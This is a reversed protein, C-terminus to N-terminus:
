AGDMITEKGLLEALWRTSAFQACFSLVAITIPVGIFAGFIGWLFTWLFVSFLVLSPSIGLTNGAVRPEIYSGIIFQATSLCAFVILASQPSQFQALAYCTPLITAFAPGIFPIYNLTFAVIGWEAAFRLGFATALAWVAIGTAASMITRILLYRRIRSAALEFGSIIRAADDDTLRRIRAGLDSVELLGLIVYLLVVLWFSVMTNLRASIGQLARLLLRSDLNDAWFGALAIGHGGLWEALRNYLLQFQGADMALSRGIRGFSLTVVSMFVVFTGFLLAAVIALAFVRHLRAELRSQIPWLVAIIFLACAVPALVVGSFYVAAVTAIVTLIGPVVVRGRQTMTCRGPNDAANPLEPVYSSQM